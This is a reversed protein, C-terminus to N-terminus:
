IDSIHFDPHSFKNIRDRYAKLTNLHKIINGGNSAKTKYLLCQVHHVTGHAKNEHMVTLTSYMAEASEMSGVHTLQSSTINQIIVQQVWSDNRDWTGAMPTKFWALNRPLETSM